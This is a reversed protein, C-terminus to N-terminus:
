AYRFEVLEGISFDNYNSPHIELIYSAPAKPFYILHWKKAIVKDVVRREKSLWIVALNFWMFLMHIASDLQNDHKNIFLLGEDKRIMSFFMYGRLRSIFTDCVKVRIQNQKIQTNDSSLVYLHM